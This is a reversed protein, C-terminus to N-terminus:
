MHTGFVLPPQPAGPEASDWLKIITYTARTGEMSVRFVPWGRARISFRPEVEAVQQWAEPREPNVPLDVTLIGALRCDFVFPNANPGPIESLVARWAPEATDLWMDVAALNQLRDMAQCCDRWRSMASIAEPSMKSKSERRVPLRMAINLNRIHNIIPLRQSVTFSYLTELDHIM